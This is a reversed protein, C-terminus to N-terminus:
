LLIKRWYEEIRLCIAVYTATVVSMFTMFNIDPKKYAKFIVYIQIMLLIM